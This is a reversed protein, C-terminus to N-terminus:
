DSEVQSIDENSQELCLRSLSSTPAASLFTHHSMYTISISQDTSVSSEDEVKVAIRGSLITKTEEAITVSTYM